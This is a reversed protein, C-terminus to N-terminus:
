LLVDISAFCILLSSKCRTTSVFKIKQFLQHNSLQDNNCHIIPLQQLLLKITFYSTSLTSGLLWRILLISCAPRSFCIDLIKVTFSLPQYATLWMEACSMHMYMQVNNENSAYHTSCPRHLPVIDTTHTDTQGPMPGSNSTKSSHAQCAPCISWNSCSQCEAAATPLHPCHWMTLKRLYSFVSKKWRWVESVAAWWGQWQRADVARFQGLQLWVLIRIWKFVLYSLM